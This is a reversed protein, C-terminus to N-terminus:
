RKERNIEKKYILTGNAGLQSGNCNWWFLTRVNESEKIYAKWDIAEDTANLLVYLNEGKKYHIVRQKEAEEGKYLFQIDLSKCDPESKRLQILTKMANLEKEYAGKEIEDWPMCRRCDPDHGGEMAIETGYYICASGAMTFLVAMQQYFIEESGCRTRLRDTDHSDLLNFMVRQNQERYLNMCRHISHELQKATLPEKWFDNVSSTLPYNMVADYEDGLLWPTSDHWIEGLLYLDPKRKLLSRRLEKLLHHSVENGVDFRIGDIGYEEVWYTCVDKIFAIVEENNTNLKPMGGAFAFSDYCGDRTDKKEKEVPFKHIMFWDKYRSQEGHEIVDKWPAFERGSHNFVGDMMIKMGYDHAKQVLQKMTDETGFMPDIKKYNTTDYKHNSLAECIPNLYIGTIGLEKLYPLKQIIGQLDGGYLDLYGTKQMKWPKVHEPDNATEGNCFREPFIQYWITHEVWEPVTGVDRENIWPMIFYQIMRGSEKLQEEKYFGDEVYIWEENKTRLKFYYKCRKYTPKLVIKWLLHHELEMSKTIEVEEGSWIENGGLIGASFPDGWNIFVREVDYGTLLTIVLEEKNRAYCYQETTRHYISGFNM